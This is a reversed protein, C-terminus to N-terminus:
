NTCTSGADKKEGGGGRGHNKGGEMEDEGGDKRGGRGRKAAERCGEAEADQCSEKKGTNGTPTLCWDKQNRTVSDGREKKRKRKLQEQIRGRQRGHQIIVPTFDLERLGAPLLHQQIM